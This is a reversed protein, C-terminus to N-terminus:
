SDGFEFMNKPQNNEGIKPTSNHVITATSKTSGPVDIQINQMSMNSFGTITLNVKQEGTDDKKKAFGIM